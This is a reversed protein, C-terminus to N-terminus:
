TLVDSIKLISVDYLNVFLAFCGFLNIYRNTLHLSTAIESSKELIFVM